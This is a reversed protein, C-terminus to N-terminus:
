LESNVKGVFVIWYFDIYYNKHKTNFNISFGNKEGM